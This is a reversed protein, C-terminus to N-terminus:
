LWDTMSSGSVTGEVTDASGHTTESKTPGRTGDEDTGANMILTEQTGDPGVMDAVNANSEAVNSAGALWNEDFM